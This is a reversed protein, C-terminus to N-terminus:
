PRQVNFWGPLGTERLEALAALCVEKRGALRADDVSRVADLRREVELFAIESEGLLYIDNLNGCSRKLRPAFELVASPAATIANGFALDFAYGRGGDGAAPRLQAGIALWAPHGSEIGALVGSWAQQDARLDAMVANAGRNQVAAELAGPTTGESGHSLSPSLTLAALIILLRAVNM